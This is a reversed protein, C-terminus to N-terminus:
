DRHRAIEGGGKMFIISVNKTNTLLENAWKLEIQRKEPNIIAHNRSKTVIQLLNSTFQDHIRM